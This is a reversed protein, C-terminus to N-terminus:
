HPLQPGDVHSSSRRDTRCAARHTNPITQVFWTGELRQRQGHPRRCRPHQGPRLEELFLGQSLIWTWPTYESLSEPFDGYRPPHALCPLFCIFRTTILGAVDPPIEFGSLFGTFHMSGLSKGALPLPFWSHIRWSGMLPWSLAWELADVKQFKQSHVHGCGSWLEWASLTFLYKCCAPTNMYPIQTPVLLM